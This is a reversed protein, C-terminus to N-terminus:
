MRERESEDPPPVDACVKCYISKRFYYIRTVLFVTASVIGWLVGFQISYELGRGKLLQVLGLFLGALVAMSVYQIAWKKIPM